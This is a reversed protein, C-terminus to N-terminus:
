TRRIGYRGIALESAIERISMEILPIPNRQPTYMKGGPAFTAYPYRMYDYGISLNGKATTTANAVVSSAFRGTRYVLRPSTMNEQLVDHLRLNITALITHINFKSAAGKLSGAKKTSKKLNNKLPKKVSVRKDKAKKSKRKPGEEKIRVNKAKKIEVVVSDLIKEEDEEEMSSSGPMTYWPQKTAWEFIAEELQPKIRVWDGPVAGPKNQKNSMLLIGVQVSKRIGFKRQRGRGQTEFYIETGFKKQLDRAEVSGVFGKFKNLKTMKNLTRIFQQMGVTLPVGLDDTGHQKTLGMNFSATEEKDFNTNIYNEIYLRATEKVKIFPDNNKGTDQTFIVQNQSEVRMHYKSSSNILNKLVSMGQKAAEHFVSDDLFPLNKGEKRKQAYYYGDKIGQAINETTVLAIIPTKDVDKRAYRRQSATWMSGLVTKIHKESM